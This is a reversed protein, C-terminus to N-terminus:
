EGRGWHRHRKRWGHRRQRQLFAGFKKKEEATLVDITDIFKESVRERVQGRKQWFQDLAGKLATRDFPETSLVKGIEKRATQLEKFLPKLAQRESRWAQRIIKRRERPLARSFHMLSREVSGGGWKHMGGHRVWAAAFAGVVLLNFALSAIIVSKMVRSLGAWGKISM